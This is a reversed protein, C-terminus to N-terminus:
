KLKKILEDVNKGKPVLGLSSLLLVGDMIGQYYARQEEKFHVHEVASMYSELIEKKKGQLNELLAEFKKRETKLEAEAEKLDEPLSGDKKWVGVAEKKWKIVEYCPDNKKEPYYIQLKVSLQQKDTISEQFAITKEKKNYSIGKRKTFSRGVRKMYDKKNKSRRYLKWLKEDIVGVQENAANSAQYFASTRELNKKSLTHDGKASSLTLAAFVALCVMALVLVISAAGIGLFPMKRDKM